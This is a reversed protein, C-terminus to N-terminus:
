RPCESMTVLPDSGCNLARYQDFKHRSYIWANSDIANPNSSALFSWWLLFLGTAAFVVISVVMFTKAPFNVAAPKVLAKKVKTKTKAKTKVKAKKIPTVKKTAM